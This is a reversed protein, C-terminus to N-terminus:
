ATVEELQEALVDSQERARIIEDIIGYSKAQESNM